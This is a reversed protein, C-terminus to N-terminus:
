PAVTKTVTLAVCPPGVRVLVIVAFEVLGVPAVRVTVIGPVPVCIMM